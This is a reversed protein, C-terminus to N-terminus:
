VPLHFKESEQLLKQVKGIYHLQKLHFSLSVLLVFSQRTKKM